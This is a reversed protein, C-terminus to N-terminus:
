QKKERRPDLKLYARLADTIVDQLNKREKTAKIKAAEWVEEPMEISTRITRVGKGWDSKKM